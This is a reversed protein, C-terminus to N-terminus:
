EFNLELDFWREGCNEHLAYVLYQWHLELDGAITGHVVTGNKLEITVSEHSLKM